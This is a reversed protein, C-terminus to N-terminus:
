GKMELYQIDDKTRDIQVSILKLAKKSKNYMKFYKQANEIPTLKADLAVEILEEPNNYDPLSLKEKNGDLAYMNTMILNGCLKYYESKKSEEYENQLIELKRVNRMLRNTIVKHLDYTKQKARDQKDKSAYYTQIAESVTIFYSKEYSSYVNLDIVTFDINKSGDAIIQPNYKTDIIKNMIEKLGKYLATVTNQESNKLDTDPDIASIYCIEQSVIPSIGYFKQVLYKNAKISGKLSAIDDEFTKESIAIPNAKDAAPPYSYEVGPLVVRVSSIYTNIRKISDIIIRSQSNIFIINSHRGMIEIMLSKYIRYGMEDLCELQIELVRDMSIQAIKAIRSGTIHKRLLMCFPPAALPNSKKEDSLHLRPFTSGASIQLRHNEKDKRITIILEDKEPQYIKEIKGYLITNNLEWALSSVTIGDFPM